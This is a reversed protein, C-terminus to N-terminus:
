CIAAPWGGTHPLPGGKGCSITSAFGCLPVRDCGSHHRVARDANRTWACCSVDLPRLRCDINRATTPAKRPATNGSPIALARGADGTIGLIVTPQCSNRRQLLPAAAHQSATRCRAFALARDHPAPPRPHFTLPLPPRHDRGIKAARAPPLPCPWATNKLVPGGNTQSCRGRHPCVGKWCPRACARWMMLPKRERAPRPGWSVAGGRIAAPPM